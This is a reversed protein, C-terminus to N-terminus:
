GDAGSPENLTQSDGTDCYTGLDVLCSLVRKSNEHGGRTRDSEIQKVPVLDKTVKWFGKLLFLLERQKTTKPKKLEVHRYKQSSM